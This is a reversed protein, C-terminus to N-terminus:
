LPQGLTQSGGQCTFGILSQMIRGPQIDAKEAPWVGAECRCGQARRRGDHLGYLVRPTKEHRQVVRSCKTVCAQATKNWKAMDKM